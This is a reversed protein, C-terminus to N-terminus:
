FEVESRVGWIWTKVTPSNADKRFWYQLDPAVSIAHTLQLKYFLEFGSEWNHTENSPKGSFFGIGLLDQARNFPSTWLTGLSFLEQHDATLRNISKSWRAALAWNGNFNIDGSLMLSQGSGVSDDSDLHSITLRLAAENPGDPDKEIGIEGLYLMKFDVISKFDPYKRNAKGDIAGITIYFPRKWAGLIAGLGIDNYGVWQAGGAAALPRAM